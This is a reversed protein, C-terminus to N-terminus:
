QYPNGLTWVVLSYRTGETVPTVRHFIFSPFITITGKKRAANATHIKGNEKNHILFELDGGKYVDGDELSITASLKRILGDARTRPYNFPKDYADIHWSYHQSKSYRTWQATESHDLQFNWNAEQNAQIILPQIEKWIWPEDLWAVSSNRIKYLAKLDKEDEPKKAQEETLGTKIEAQEEGFRIIDDCFKHSLASEYILYNNELNM